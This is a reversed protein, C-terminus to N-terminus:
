ADGLLLDLLGGRLSGLQGAMWLSLLFGMYKFGPYCRAERYRRMFERAPIDHGLEALADRYLLVDGPGFHNPLDLYLSGYRAQGWDILYPQGGHVLVHEPTIDAHILTLSGGEEWLADMAALFPEVAEEMRRAVEGYEAVFEPREMAQALRERYNALIFGEFYARDARPLWVLEEARGLNAAHIGALVQATRAPLHAPPPAADPAVDQMCLPMPTDTSLDLTHGFPIGEHGQEGLLKLVRRELLPAEKTILTVTDTGGQPDQFAVAHRDPRADSYGREHDDLPRSEVRVVRADLRVSERITQQLLQELGRM